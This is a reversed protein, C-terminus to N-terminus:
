LGKLVSRLSLYISRGIMGMDERTPLLFPRAPVTVGRPHKRSGTVFYDKGSKLGEESPKRGPKHRAGKKTLPIFNPGQTKFGRDQYLAYKPGSLTVQYGEGTTAATAGVHQWMFSTNRLPHGGNRYSPVEVLYETRKKRKGRQRTFLVNQGLKATRKWERGFLPKLPLHSVRQGSIGRGYSEDIHERMLYVFKQAIGTRVSPDDLAKRVLDAWRSM